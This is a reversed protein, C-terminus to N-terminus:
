NAAEEARVDAATAKRSASGVYDQGAKEKVPLRSSGGGLAAAMLFPVRKGELSSGGSGTNISRSAIYQQLLDSNTKYLDRDRKM